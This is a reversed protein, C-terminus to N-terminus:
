GRRPANVADCMADIVRPAKEPGNGTFLLVQEVAQYLLMELGPVVTGGRASWAAALASPWPEYAVDLLVPPADGPSPASGRDVLQAALGDAARPPLTSIVVDYEALSGTASDYPLLSLRVGSADAAGFAEAARSEDRAFLVVDRHGLRSLAAIAAASTGGAGLIAARRGLTSGDGPVGHLTPLGAAHRLANIIGMVDTNHGTLRTAGDADTTVVVTNLVGLEAAAGVCEDVESVMARKLPMTVSLGCWAPERRVGAMFATLEPEDVDVATYEADFGLVRYAANHLAPSKSHSIPHGLVAARRMM